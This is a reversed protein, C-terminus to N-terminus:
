SRRLRNRAAALPAAVFAEAGAAFLLSLPLAVLLNSWDPAPWLLATLLLAPWHLIYLPASLRAWLRQRGLTLPRTPRRRSRWALLGLLVAIGLAWFRAPAIPAEWTPTVPAPFSVTLAYLLVFLIAAAILLDGGRGQLGGNLRLGLAVGLAVPAALGGYLALWSSPAWLHFLLLHALLVAALLAPVARAAVRHGVALVASAVLYFAFLARLSWALLLLDNREEVGLLADSLAATPLFALAEALLRAPQFLGAPAEKALALLALSLAVALLYLPGLRLLRNALFALPRGRYFRLGAETVFLGSFVFFALIALDGFGSAELEGGAWGAIALGDWLFVALAALFVFSGLGRYDFRFSEDPPSL